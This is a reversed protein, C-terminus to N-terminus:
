PFLRIRFTPVHVPSWSLSFSSFERQTKRKGKKKEGEDGRGGREMQRGKGQYGEGELKRGSEMERERETGTEM